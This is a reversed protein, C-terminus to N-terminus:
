GPGAKLLYPLISYGTWFLPFLNLMFHPIFTYLMQSSKRWVLIHLYGSVTTGLIFFLALTGEANVTHLFKAWFLAHITGIFLSFLVLGAARMFFRVKRSLTNNKYLDWTDFIYLWLLQESSANAVAWIVGTFLIGIVYPNETEIRIFFSVVLTSTIVALNIYFWLPPASLNKFHYGSGGRRSISISWAAFYYLIMPLLAGTETYLFGALVPFLLALLASIVLDVSTPKWNGSM